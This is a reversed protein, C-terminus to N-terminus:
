DLNLCLQIRKNNIIWKNLVDNANKNARDQIKNDLLNWIEMTITSPINAYICCAGQGIYAIKNLSPNTFNHECSYKWENIVKYMYELTLKESNFMEIGKQILQKKEEGSLNNYFGAKYDEWKWYPHYIRM